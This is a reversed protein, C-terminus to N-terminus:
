RRDERGRERADWMADEAMARLREDTKRVRGSGDCVRCTWEHSLVSGGARVMGEGDCDPCEVFPPPTRPTYLGM